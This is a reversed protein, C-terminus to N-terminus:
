RQVVRSPFPKGVILGLWGLVESATRRFGDLFGGLRERFATAMFFVSMAVTAAAIPM